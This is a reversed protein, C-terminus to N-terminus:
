PKKRGGGYASMIQKDSLEVPKSSTKGFLELVAGVYYELTRLRLLILLGMFDYRFRPAVRHPAGITVDLNEVEHWWMNPIFLLDGPELVVEYMDAKEFLPHEKKDYHHFSIPSNRAPAERMRGITPYMAMSNRPDVLRWAKRGEVMLFYNDAPACHFNSGTKAGGIFLENKIINVQAADEIQRTLTRESLEPFKHFIDTAAVSYTSKGSEIDSIVDSLKRQKVTHYIADPELDAKPHAPVTGAGFCSKLESLTLLSSKSFGRIVLPETERRKMSKIADPTFTDLTYEVPKVKLGTPLDAYKIHMNRLVRREWRLFINQTNALHRCTYIFRLSVPFSVFKRNTTM